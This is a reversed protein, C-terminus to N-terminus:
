VENEWNMDRDILEYLKQNYPRFYEKLMEKNEKTVRQNTLDSSEGFIKKNLRSRKLKHVIDVKEKKVGIFDFCQNVMKRSNNFFDESKIILFRSKPFYEFWNKLYKYYCGWTYLNRAYYQLANSDHYEVFNKPNTYALKLLDNIDNTVPSEKKRACQRLYGHAQSITRTIPNRLLIIFKAKPLMDKVRKPVELFRLYHPTAEFCIEDSACPLFNSKYHEAGKDFKYKNNFFYLEKRSSGKIKSHNNLAEYLSTTGCKAMGIILFAPLKTRM